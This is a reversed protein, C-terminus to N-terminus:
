SKTERLTELVAELADNVTISNMCAHDNNCWGLHGCPACAVYNCLVRHHKPYGAFEPLTVGGWLIVSPVKVAAASHMLGGETGIFLAAIKQMQAAQKFSTQGCLNITNNLPRSNAIGVQVIALEPHSKCLGDILAQWRDFPWSRLDGFWDRNTDPEVIIFSKNELGHNNLINTTTHEEDKGFCLSPLPADIDLNFNRAIVNIAHGGQKWIFRNNQQSEAYSHILMDVHVLHPKGDRARSETKALIIREYTKKFIEPRMLIAFGFDLLRAMASKSQTQTFELYEINGFVPDNALTTSRNYLFGCLIDSLSPKHCVTIPHGDRKHLESLVGTWILNGGLGM